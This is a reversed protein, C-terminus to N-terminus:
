NTPKETTVKSKTYDIESGMMSHPIMYVLFLVIMAIIPWRRNRPKKKVIFLTIIWVVLAIATKNDTLDFGFPFGTWYAGFAFKQVLMGLAFGGLLLFLTTYFTFIFTKKRKFIAELGARSSFLMALFMLVIHPVLILAPVSGKYRLVVPADTLQYDNGNKHLNIIYTIKGAAPLPPLRFGLSDNTRQLTAQSWVDNSKYRKFSIDGSISTDAVKLFIFAGKTDDSARILKYKIEKDDIIQKGYVPHTPGTKRQFIASALTVIFALIWLVFSRNM